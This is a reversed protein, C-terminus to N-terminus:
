GPRVRVPVTALPQTLMTTNVSFIKQFAHRTAAAHINRLVRQLEAVINVRNATRDGRALINTMSSFLEDPFPVPVLALPAPHHRTKIVTM